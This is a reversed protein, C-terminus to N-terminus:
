TTPQAKALRARAVAVGGPLLGLVIVLLSLSSILRGLRVDAPEFDMTIEHTGAPVTVGRLVTNVEHITASEGDIRAQWGGPYYVESLVLFASESAAVRLRIHNAQWAAELVRCQRGASSAVPVDTQDTQIIYVVEEPNYGPESLLALVEEATAKVEVREPFWARDLYGTFEYVAAPQYSGGTYLNGVFVESFRPDDYRQQSVMYKVNLMRLIGASAPFWFPVDQYSLHTARMFQDYNALKAAHYGTVSEVGFAAWRNENQLRGVPLPFIRYAATDSTLYDMVQDSNLYRGIISSPQLTTSRLSESSPEIIQRDVRGLDFISVVLISAVLWKRPIKGRVWLYVAGLILGIIVLFWVADVRIMALRLNDIHTAVQQSVGTTAPFIEAIASATLMFIVFLALVGGAAQLIVRRVKEPRTDKVWHLLSDLGIGALVVVSFQTLVLSMTPVRFKNFYPFFDYFLKYLISNHGMSLLYALM